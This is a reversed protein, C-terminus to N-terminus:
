IEDKIVLWKDIYYEFDDQFPKQQNNKSEYVRQEILRQYDDYRTHELEWSNSYINCFRYDNFKEHREVHILAWKNEDDSHWNHSNNSWKWSKAMQLIPFEEVPITMENIVAQKIEEEITEPKPKSRFNGFPRWQQVGQLAKAIEYIMETSGITKRKIENNDSNNQNTVSMKVAYKFLEKIKLNGNKDRPVASYYMGTIKHKHADKERHLVKHLTLPTKNTEARIINKAEIKLNQSIRKAEMNCWKDLLTEAQEQEIIIHYHPHFTKHEENTTVELACIGDFGGGIITGDKKAQVKMITRWDNYMAQITEQLEGIEPSKQHLVLMVPNKMAEVMAQYKTIAVISKIQSCNGCLKDNCKYTAKYIEEGTEQDTFQTIQSYCREMRLWRRQNGVNSNLNYYEEPVKELNTKRYMTEGYKNTLNERTEENIKPVYIFSKRSNWKGRQEKPLSLEYESLRRSVVMGYFKRRRKNNWIIEAKSKEGESKNGESKNGESKNGESKNGKLKKGKSKELHYKSLTDFTEDKTCPIGKSSKRASIKQSKTNVNAMDNIYFPTTRRWM